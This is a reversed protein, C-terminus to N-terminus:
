KKKKAAPKEETSKTSIQGQPAEEQGAQANTQDM